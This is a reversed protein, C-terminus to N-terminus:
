VLFLAMLALTVIVIITVYQTVKMFSQYTEVHDRYQEDHWVPKNDAMAM